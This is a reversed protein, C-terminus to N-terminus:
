VAVEKLSIRQFPPVPEDSNRIEDRFRRMAEIQRRSIDDAVPADLVTVIAQSGKKIAVPEFPIFKGEDYYVKYAQM